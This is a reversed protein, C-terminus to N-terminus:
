PAIVVLDGARMQPVSFEAEKVRTVSNVKGVSGLSNSVFVYGNYYVLKQAGTFAIDGLFSNDSLRYAKVTDLGSVFMTDVSVAVDGASGLTLNLDQVLGTVVDATVVKFAFSNTFGAVYVTNGRVDIGNAKIPLTIPAQWTRPTVALNLRHIVDLTGSPSLTKVVLTDGVIVFQTPVRGLSADPLTVTEVVNRGNAIVVRGDTLNGFGYYCFGTRTSGRPECKVAARQTVQRALNLGPTAAGTIANVFTYDQTSGSLGSALVINDTSADYDAAYFSGGPNKQVGTFSAIDIDVYGNNVDGQIL